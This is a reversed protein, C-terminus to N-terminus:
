GGVWGRESERREKMAEWQVELGEFKCSKMMRKEDGKQMLRFKFIM